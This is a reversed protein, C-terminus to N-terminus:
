KGTQLAGAACARPAGKKGRWWGHSAGNSEGEAGADASEDKVLATLRLPRPTKGGCRELRQEVGDIRIVRLSARVHAADGRVAHRESPGRVELAAEDPTDLAHCEKVVNSFNVLREEVDHVVLIVVDRRFLALEDGRVRLAARVHECGQREEIGVEGLPHERMMLSPVAQPIRSSQASLFYWNLRADDRDAIREVGDGVTATITAGMTEILANARDSLAAALLEIGM